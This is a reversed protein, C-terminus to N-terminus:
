GGKRLVCRHVNRLVFANANIADRVVQVLWWVPLGCVGLPARQHTDTQTQTHIYICQAYSKGIAMRM